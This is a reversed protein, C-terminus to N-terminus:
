PDFRGRYKPNLSVWEGADRRDYAESRTGVFSPDDPRWPDHVVYFDDAGIWTVLERFREKMRKWDITQTGSDFVEKVPVPLDLQKGDIFAPDLNYFEVLLPLSHLTYGGTAGSNPVPKCWVTEESGSCTYTVATRAGFSGYTIREVKGEWTDPAHETTVPPSQRGAGAELRFKLRTQEEYELGLLDIGDAHVRRVAEECGVADATAVFPDYVEEGARDLPLFVDYEPEPSVGSAGDITGM